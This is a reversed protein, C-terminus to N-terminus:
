ARDLGGYLQVLERDPLVRESKRGVFFSGKAGDWTSPRGALVVDFWPLWFATLRAIAEAAQKGRQGQVFGRLFFLWSWALVMGQGGNPGGAIQEFHRFLRRHGLPTFRTFDYAGMHVQQMFPTESFVVGGPKLVRHIEHVCRYPDVVHELVAQVVIGDFTADAFPIDHADMVLGTSKGLHVDSTVVEVNPHARLPAIASGGEGAGVVLVVPSSAQQLLANLFCRGNREGQPNRSLSPLLKAVGDKLGSRPRFTTARHSTFDSISFLSNGEHILIPVGDVLPYSQGCSPCILATMGETLATQCAPCRLAQRVLSSLV